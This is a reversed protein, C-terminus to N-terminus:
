QMKNKPKSGHVVLDYTTNASTTNVAAGEAHLFDAGSQVWIENSWFELEIGFLDSSLVILGVGSRNNSSHSEALVKMDLSVTYGTARDLPPFAVNVPFILNYNSFGGRESQAASTDFTTKNGATTPTSAGDTNFKLWGQQDPTTGLAGNYLDLAHARSGLLTILLTTLVFLRSRM